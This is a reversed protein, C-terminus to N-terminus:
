WSTRYCTIFIEDFARKESVLETLFLVVTDANNLLLGILVFIV